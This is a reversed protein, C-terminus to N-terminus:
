YSHRSWGRSSTQCTRCEQEGAVLLATEGLYNKAEIDPDHQLILKILESNGGRVAYMLPTVGQNDSVNVDAGHQFLLECMAFHKRVTAQILPTLGYVNAENVIAGEELLFTAVDLHDKSAAENLATQLTRGNRDKSVLQAGAMILKKCGDIDGKRAAAILETEGFEDM